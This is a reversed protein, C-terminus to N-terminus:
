VLGIKRAVYDAIVSYGNDNPHGGPAKLLKDALLNSDVDYFCGPQHEIIKDYIGRLVHLKRDLDKVGINLENLPMGLSAFDNNGKYNLIWSMQQQYQTPRFSLSAILLKPGIMNVLGIFQVILLMTIQVDNWPHWFDTYIKDIDSKGQNPWIQHWKGNKLIETRSAPGIGWIVWDYDPNRCLEEIGIRTARQNSSGNRGLNIVSLNFKERLQAPWSMTTPDSSESGFTWSDGLTLIKM